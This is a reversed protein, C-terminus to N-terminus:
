CAAADTYIRFSSAEDNDSSGVYSNSTYPQMCRSTGAFGANYFWKAAYPGRNAWSSMQDNFSFSSLDAATGPDSWKLMRGGWSAQAFLCVWGSPCDAFSKATLSVAAGSPMTMWEGDPSLIAGRAEMQPILTKNEDAIADISGVKTLDSSRDASVGGNTDISEEAYASPVTLVFATCAAFLVTLHRVINM